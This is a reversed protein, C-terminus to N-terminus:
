RSDTACVVVTVDDQWNDSRGLLTLEYVHTSVLADRDVGDVLLEARKEDSVGVQTRVQLTGPLGRAEWVANRASVPLTSVSVALPGTRQSDVYLVSPTCVLERRPEGIWVPIKAKPGAGSQVILWGDRSDEKHLPRCGELVVEQLTHTVEGSAAHILTDGCEASVCWGAPEVSTRLPPPLDTGSTFREVLIVSEAPVAGLASSITATNRDLRLIEPTKLHMTAEVPPLDAAFSVRLAAVIEEAFSPKVRVPLEVSGHAPIERVPVTLESCACSQQVRDIHVAHGLTNKITFVLQRQSEGPQFDIEVHQPAISV